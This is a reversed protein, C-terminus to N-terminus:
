NVGFFLLASPAPNFSIYGTGRREKRLIEEEGKKKLEEPIRKLQSLRTDNTHEGRDRM